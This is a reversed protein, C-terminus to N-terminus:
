AEKKTKLNNWTLNFMFKFMNVIEKSEIVIAMFNEKYSIIAVKDGFIEMDGFFSFEKENILFIERMEEEANKLWERSEESDIAIVKAKINKRIRKTYYETAYEKPFIDFIKNIGAWELIEGGESSSDVTDNYVSILGALGEYFRVKPKVELINYISNLEPMIRALEFAKQKLGNELDKPNQAGFYRKKGKFTQYFLSKSILSDIVIYATPRKIGAKKAINQVSSEGLELGALYVNTEEKSLGIDQLTKIIEINM